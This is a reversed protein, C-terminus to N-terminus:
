SCAVRRLLSHPFTFKSGTMGSNTFINYKKVSYKITVCKVLHSSGFLLNFHTFRGKKPAAMENNKHGSIGDATEENDMLTNKRYKTQFLGSQTGNTREFHIYLCVCNQM